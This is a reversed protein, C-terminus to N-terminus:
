FTLLIPNTHSQGFQASRLTTRAVECKDCKDCRPRSERLPAARKMYRFVSAPIIGDHRSISRSVIPFERLTKM